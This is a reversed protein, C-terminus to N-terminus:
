AKKSKFKVLYSGLKSLKSAVDKLVAEPLRAPEGGVDEVDIQYKKTSVLFDIIDQGSHQRNEILWKEIMEVAEAPKIGEAPPELPIVKPNPEAQEEIAPAAGCKIMEDYSAGGGLGMAALARGIASTECNEMAATRNINGEWKAQSHGTFFREPKDTDPIATAEFCVWEKWDGVLKTRIAGRPHNHNFIAIRSEVLNYEKGRFNITKLSPQNM